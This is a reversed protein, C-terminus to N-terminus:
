RKQNRRKKKGRKRKRRRRRRRKPRRRLIGRPPGYESNRQFEMMLSKDMSISIMRKKKRHLAQSNLIIQGNLYYRMIRKQKREGRNEIGIIKTWKSCEWRNRVTPIM